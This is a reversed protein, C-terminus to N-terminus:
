FKEHKIMCALQVKNLLCSARLLFDDPYPRKLYILHFVQDESSLFERKIFVVHRKRQASVVRYLDSVSELKFPRNIMLKREMNLLM